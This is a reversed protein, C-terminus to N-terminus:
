DYIRVGNKTPHLKWINEDIKELLVDMSINGPQNILSVDVLINKSEKVRIKRVKILEDSEGKDEEKKKFVEKYPIYPVALSGGAGRSRKSVSIYGRTVLSQLTRLGRTIIGNM